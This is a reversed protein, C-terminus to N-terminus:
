QTLMVDKMYYIEGNILINTSNIYTIDFLVVKRVCFQCKMLSGCM